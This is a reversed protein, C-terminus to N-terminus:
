RVRLGRRRSIIETALFMIGGLFSVITAFLYMSAGGFLDTLRGGVVGGTMGALGLYVMSLLSFGTAGLQPPLIRAVYHMCVIWFVAFTIAAGAQLALLVWPDDSVYYMFWRITYLIGVIGILVYEHIRNLYKGLLAFVPIEMAAALAWAWGVMADSAGLDKMYLGLMVDNMRHPVSIIFVLFLFWLFSKNTFLEKLAKLNMGEGEAPEDRLFILLLLPVIWAGWLLYPLKTIGGLVALLLGGSLSVVTYGMSGFLRLSGYSSGRRAASQVSISDLLPMSPQYFFYLALVFCLTLVYSGGSNFLAVSSIIALIWLWFIMKKVTQLRDSLYGWFPQIM